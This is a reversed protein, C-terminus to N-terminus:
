NAVPPHVVGHPSAPKVRAGPPPQVGVADAVPVHPGVASIVTEPEVPLPALQGGFAEVVTGWHVQPICVTAQAGCHCDADAGPQEAFSSHTGDGGTGKSAFYQMEWAPFLM